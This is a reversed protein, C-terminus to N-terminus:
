CGVGGENEAGATGGLCHGVGKPLQADVILKNTAVGFAMGVGDTIRVEGSMLVVGTPMYGSM